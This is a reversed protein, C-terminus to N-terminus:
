CYDQDCEAIVYGGRGAGQTRLHGPSGLSLIVGGMGMNLGSILWTLKLPPSNILILHGLFIGRKQM